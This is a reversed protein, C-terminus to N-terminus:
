SAGAFASYIRRVRGTPDPGHVDLFDFRNDLAAQATARRHLPPMRGPLADAAAELETAALALVALRVLALGCM